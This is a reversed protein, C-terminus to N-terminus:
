WGSSDADSYTDRDSLTASGSSKKGSGVKMATPAMVM